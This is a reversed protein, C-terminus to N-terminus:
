RGRGPRQGSVATTAKTMAFFEIYIPIGAPVLIASEGRLQDDKRGSVAAGSGIRHNKAIAPAGGLNAGSVASTITTIAAATASKNSRACTVSTTKVQVSSVPWTPKTLAGHQRGAVDAGLIPHGLDHTQGGVANRNM